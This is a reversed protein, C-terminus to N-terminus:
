NAESGKRVLELIYDPKLPLKTVEVGLANSVANALAAGAAAIGGEGAGKVGLPNHPSPFDETSIFMGPGFFAFARGGCVSFQGPHFIVYKGDANLFLKLNDIRYRPFQSRVDLFNQRAALHDQLLLDLGLHMLRDDFQAGFHATIRSARARLDDLKSGLQCFQRRAVFQADGRGARMREGMPHILQNRGILTVGRDHLVHLLDRADLQDEPQMHM